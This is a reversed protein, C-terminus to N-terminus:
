LKVVLKGGSPLAVEEAQAGKVTVTVGKPADIQALDIDSGLTVVSDKAAFWKSGGDMILNANKIAGNLDTSALYVTMDREHDDHLIDGSVSMDNLSVHIGYVKEGRVKTAAPDDNWISHVLLGEDSVIDTGNINIIANQSKILVAANKSRASGGNVTLEGVEVNQGMVCHILAFYSGCKANSDTFTVDSQGAIIVAMNTVDFDCNNFVDHCCFDAYAGYGSKTSIVKCNNAELYVFGQSMDTSLAAWGDTIVTSDYFYSYSNSVTCHTRCNGAIELAAPPKTKVAVPADNGYPAGHSILISDYVRLISYEGASTACRNEGSVSIISNKLTLQGHNDVAAGACKGGLGMGDGSLNIVAGDVTFESQGGEVFIGGTMGDYSVIKVDDAVNDTVEGGYLCDNKSEAKMYKGDKIYVAPYMEPMQGPPPGGPGKDDVIGNLKILEEIPLLVYHGRVPKEIKIGRIKSM